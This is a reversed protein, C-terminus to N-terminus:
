SIPAEYGYVDWNEKKERAFLEIRKGHPYITDIIQRFEEPKHSHETREISQVSDFLKPVDPPCSGKVCVLLFEHRVSNYHGMNHKIKDWIFSSKYAFSWAKVVQFSEELMPSTTWLFLVANDECIGAIPLACIDALKMVPYHDRQEPHYDPQTNGYSWPPDAYIVRYKADPLSVTRAVETAKLERSAQTLSKEGRKVQGALDPYKEVLLDALNIYCRNTGVARARLSDTKRADPSVEAILQRLTERPRGPATGGHERQREKAVEQLPAYVSLLKQREADAM